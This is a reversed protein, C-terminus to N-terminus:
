LRMAETTDNASNIPAVDTTGAYPWRPTADLNWAPCGKGVMANGENSSPVGADM